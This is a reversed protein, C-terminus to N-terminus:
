LSYLWTDCVSVGINCVHVGINCVHVCVNCVYMCSNCANVNGVLLLSLAEGCM